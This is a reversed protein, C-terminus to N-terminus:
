CFSSIEKIINKLKNEELLGNTTNNIILQNNSISLKIAPLINPMAGSIMRGLKILSALKIVEPKLPEELLGHKVEFKAPNDVYSQALISALIVREQHTISFIDGDMIYNFAINSRYEANHCRAINALLCAAKRIRAEIITEAAFLPAIFDFLELAYKMDSSNSGVADQCYCILPDYQQEEESLKSLIFGERVGYASFVINTPKICKVVAEVMALAYPLYLLRRKSLNYHKLKNQSLEEIYKLDELLQNAEITYNHLINIPYDHLQILLKAINRFSGGIAYFNRDPIFDLKLQAQILKANSNSDALRLIGLPYSISKTIKRDDIQAFEISGGGFDAITGCANNVSSAVGLASYYAEEEGSLITIKVKHAQEILSIFEKGDKADRVAATALLYLNGVGVDRAYRIFKDLAKIALLRGEPNLLGTKGLNKALECSYKENVLVKPM